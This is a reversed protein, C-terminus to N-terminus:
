PAGMTLDGSVEALAERILVQECETPGTGRVFELFKAVTDAPNDLRNAGAPKLGIDARAAQAYELACANPFRERLRKMPDILRHRDDLVVRIFDQSSAVSGGLLAELTGRVTRVSRLPHFPLQSVTISGDPKLDILSMSKAQGEEDFGFALPSGAYRIHPAGVSQPRHLHGLAVYHAGDFVNAPVTEIGGVTRSLPRESDSAAAGEVFAHAVVVWRAGEPVHARAASLQARLVDAPASIGADGFCERAAFEYCFPLASFAVPGASDRLILAQEEASVAGRVLARAPNALMAMAEIREGSDHNGGIMVIAMRAHEAAEKLFANFQRVASEPPAARDFIDGAIILVDPKHEDIAALIQELIRAHDEILSLGAFQRGLHLDATHLLKM